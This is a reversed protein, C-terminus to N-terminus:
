IVDILEKILKPTTINLDPVFVRETLKHLDKGWPGINIVPISLDKMEDFPISYLENKWLPMNNKIYPATDEFNEIAAYSLDSIGMFYEKKDIEESFVSNYDISISNLNNNKNSVHPYYPPSIAVIVM